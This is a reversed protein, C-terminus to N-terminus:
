IIHYILKANKYALKAEEETSFLGLYIVKSNLKIQSHFKNSKTKYYGKAKTQNWQNQQHNVVRLNTLESNLRNGDIHDVQKKLDNIELNLFTHAIIRHRYILKGNIGITNYGNQNAVNNILKIKNFRTRYINGNKFVKLEVGDLWITKHNDVDLIEVTIFDM